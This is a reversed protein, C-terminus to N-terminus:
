PSSSRHLLALFSASSPGGYSWMTALCFGSVVAACCAMAPLSTVEGLVIFDFIVNFVITLSRAVQYFSVEVYKLCLNNFVIMATFVVSLSM